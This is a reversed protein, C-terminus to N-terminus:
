AEAVPAGLAKRSMPAMELINLIYAKSEVEFHPRLASPKAGSELVQLPAAIVGHSADLHDSQLVVLFPTAKAGARHPNRFVRFQRTVSPKVGANWFGHKRRCRQLAGFDEAIEARNKAALATREPRRTSVESSRGAM